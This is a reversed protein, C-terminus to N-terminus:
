FSCVVGSPSTINCIPGSDHVFFAQLFVFLPRPSLLSRTSMEAPLPTAAWIVRAQRFPLDAVGGATQFSSGTPFHRVNDGAGLVRM